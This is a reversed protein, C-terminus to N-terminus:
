SSFFCLLAGIQFFNKRRDLESEPVALLWGLDNDLLFNEVVEIVCLINIESM